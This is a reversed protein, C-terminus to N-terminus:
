WTNTYQRTLFKNFFKDNNLNFHLWKSTLRMGGVKKWAGEHWQMKAGLSNPSKQLLTKKSNSQQDQLKGSKSSQRWNELTCRKTGELILGGARVNSCLFFVLSLSRLNWVGGLEDQFSIEM